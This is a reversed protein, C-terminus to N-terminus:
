SGAEWFSKTRSGCLDVYFRRRM